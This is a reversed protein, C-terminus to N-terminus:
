CATALFLQRILADFGDIAALSGESDRVYDNMILRAPLFLFERWPSSSAVTCALQGAQQSENTAHSFPPAFSTIIIVHSSNFVKSAATIRSDAALCDRGTYPVLNTLWTRIPFFM